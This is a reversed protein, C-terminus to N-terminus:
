ERVANAEGTLRIARLVPPMMGAFVHGTTRDMYRPQYFERDFYEVYKRNQKLQKLVWKRESEDCNIKEVEKMLAKRKSGRM